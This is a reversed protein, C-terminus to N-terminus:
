PKTQLDKAQRQREHSQGAHLTPAKANSTSPDMLTLEAEPQLFDPEPSRHEAWGVKQIPNHYSGITEM